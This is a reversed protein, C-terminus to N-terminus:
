GALSTIDKYSDPTEVDVEVGYDSFDVTTKTSVPTESEGEILISVRRPLDDDGVWVDVPLSEVDGFFAFSARVAEASAEDPAKEVLADVTLEAEYHTTTTGDIEEEGVEEVGAGAARLWELYQTPDQNFQSTASSGPATLDIRGWEKGELVSEFAAGQVYMHSGHFLVDMDVGPVGAGGSTTMTMTGADNAFDFEGEADLTVDQEGVSIETTMEVHASGAEEAAAAAAPLADAPEGGAGGGGDDDSCAVGALALLAAVFLATLKGM